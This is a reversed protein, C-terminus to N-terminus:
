LISSDSMIQEELKLSYEFRVDEIDFNLNLIEQSYVDPNQFFSAHLANPLIRDGLALCSVSVPSKSEQLRSSEFGVTLVCM